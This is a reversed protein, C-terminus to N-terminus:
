LPAPNRGDVTPSASVSVLPKVKRSVPINRAGEVLVQVRGRRVPLNECRGFLRISM